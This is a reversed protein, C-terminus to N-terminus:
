DEMLSWVLAIIWGAVTWGTLLNLIFIALLNKKGKLYACITPLLYVGVILCVLSLAVLIPQFATYVDYILNM